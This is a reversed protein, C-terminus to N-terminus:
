SNSSDTDSPNFTSIEFLSSYSLNRTPIAGTEGSDNRHTILVRFPGMPEGPSTSTNTVRNGGTATEIYIMGSSARGLARQIGQITENYRDPTLYLLPNIWRSIAFDDHTEADTAAKSIIHDRITEGLKM